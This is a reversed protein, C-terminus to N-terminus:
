RGDAFGAGLASLAIAAPVLAVLLRTKVHKM